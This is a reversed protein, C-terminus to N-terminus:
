FLTKRLLNLSILVGLVLLWTTPPTIEWIQTAISILSDM